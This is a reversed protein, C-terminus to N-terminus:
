IDPWHYLDGVIYSGVTSSVRDLQRCGKVSWGSFSCYVSKKSGSCLVLCTRGLNLSLGSQKCIIVRGAPTAPVKMSPGQTVRSESTIVELVPLCQMSCLCMYPVLLSLLATSCIRLDGRQQSWTMIYGTASMCLLLNIHSQPWTHPQSNKM